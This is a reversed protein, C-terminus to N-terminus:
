EDKLSEMHKTLTEQSTQVFVTNMAEYSKDMLEQINDKTLGKTPIPPLITIYSTGPVYFFSLCM